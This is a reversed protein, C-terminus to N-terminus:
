RSADGPPEAREGREAQDISWAANILGVHSFAQPFNGLQSGDSPELEESLLGVDNARATVREFVARARDVRGTRALAEALWYSCIVFAGEESGSWRRVFGDSGLEREIVDVTGRLRPDDGGVFGVLAMLLVSADLRDSGFAGTYAGREADWGRELIATRVRDREASWRAVRESGDIRDALAVARDLAVWSMLKSSLYHREGERGEWIGADPETWGDAADDALRRLFGATAPTLDGLRDRLRHAADLVEGAVDLQRQRWADNGVRVPRAGRWGRLHPLERESLDVEGEIGFMIQVPGDPSGAAARAMWDFYRTAEDPCAGVWLANLTLSADRLWAYRYDWNAEGGPVEPLSTTPAAVIAGSPGYTLANLVLASQRVEGAYAGQYATHQDSWSRWGAAAEALAERPTATMGTGARIGAFHQVGFGCSEGARLAVTTRACGGEIALPREGSLRLSVGGGITEIAGDVEVLEPRSLGYAPRPAFVVDVPVEGAVGEVLRVVAHPADRGLDHDRAGPATALADTLRVVGEATTFTTRLVLTGAEYAREVAFRSAPRISWHGADEDLLRAFVSPSDFRPACWWDISGARNVLAASHGDGLLAYSGIPESNAEV